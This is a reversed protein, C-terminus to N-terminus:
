LAMQAQAARRPWESLVIGGIVLVAGATQALTLREGLVLGALLITFVPELTSVLATQPAGLDRVGQLFLVVAVFTPVLVILLLLGWLALSWSVPALSEGSVLTIAGVAFASLAFTYTMLVM